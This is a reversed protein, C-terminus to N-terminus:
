SLGVRCYVVAKIFEPLIDIKLTESLQFSSTKNCHNCQICVETVEYNDFQFQVKFFSFIKLSTVAWYKWKARMRQYKAFIIGVKYSNPRLELPLEKFYLVSGRLYVQTELSDWYINYPSYIKYIYIIYYIACLIYYITYIIYTAYLIYIYNITYIMFYVTCLIYYM